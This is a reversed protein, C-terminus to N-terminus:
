KTINKSIMKPLYKFLIFIIFLTLSLKLILEFLRGIDFEMGFIIYKYREGLKSTGIIKDIIPKGLINIIDNSFTSLFTGVTVGVAMDLIDKHTLFHTFEGITNVGVNITSLTTNDIYKLGLKSYDNIKDSIKDSLETM